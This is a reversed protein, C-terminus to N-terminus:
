YSIMNVLLFVYTLDLRCLQCYAGGPKKLKRIHDGIKISITEKKQGEGVEFTYDEGVWEWRWKYRSEGDDFERGFPM